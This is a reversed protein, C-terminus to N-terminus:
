APKRAVLGILASKGRHGSGEAVDEQYDVIEEITWEAFAARLIEETYLNEIEAPGGTKFELQQPTYGHLLVYGGPRTLQKMRTFLVDRWPPGVFQIFIGVVWDFADLMDAPPWNPCLIDATQFTVEVQKGQALRRAKEVAVPSIEVATVDLGQQALWVSNRGEGDALALANKGSAFLAARRALFHNPATGFLYDEGAEGYRKNWRSEQNM